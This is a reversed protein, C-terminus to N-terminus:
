EIGHRRIKYHLTNPRIGLLRAAEAKNGKAAILASKIFNAELEGMRHELSRAPGEDPYPTLSGIGIPGATKELMARELLFGSLNDFLLKLRKFDLVSHVRRDFGEGCILWFSLSRTEPFFPIIAIVSTGVMADQLSQPVQPENRMTIQSVATLQNLSLSSLLPPADLSARKVGLSTVLAVPCALVNSVDEMMASLSTAQQASHKLGSLKQYFTIKRRRGKSGPIYFDLEIIPRKQIVYGITALMLAFLLPSTVTINFWRVDLQLLLLVTLVLLALPTTAAIWLKCQDRRNKDRGRRLGYIPLAVASIFSFVIFLEYVPYLSGRVTTVTYGRMDEVGTMMLPTVFAFLSALVFGAGYLSVYVPLFRPHNWSDISISIALHVLVVMMLASIAYYIAVCTFNIRYSFQQLVIFEAINLGLSLLVMARFLRARRDQIAAKHSVRLIILKALFALLAPISYVSIM